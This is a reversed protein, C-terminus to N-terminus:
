RAELRRLLWYAGVGIVGFCVLGLMRQMLGGFSSRDYAIAGSFFGVLVMFALLNLGLYLRFGTDARRWLALVVLLPLLLLGVVMPNASHLPHPLPFVGAWLNSLGALVLALVVLGRLLAPTGMGSLGRWFGYGGVIAALGSLLAGSNAIWPQSSLPSGLDSATTTLLSFTPFFPAALVQVGFYLLPVAMACGLAARVLSHSKSPVRM